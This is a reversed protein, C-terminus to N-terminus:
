ILKEQMSYRYLKTMFIPVFLLSENYFQLIILLRLNIASLCPKRYKEFLMAWFITKSSFMKHYSQYDQKPSITLQSYKKPCVTSGVSVLAGKWCQYFEVLNQYGTLLYAWMLDHMLTMEKKMNGSRLFANSKHNIHLFSTSHVCFPPWQSPQLLFNDIMVSKTRLLPPIGAFMHIMGTKLLNRRM